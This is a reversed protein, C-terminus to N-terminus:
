HSHTLRLEGSTSKTGFFAKWAIFAFCVTLKKFRCCNVFCRRHVGNNRSLRSWRSYDGFAGPLREKDCGGPIIINVYYHGAM